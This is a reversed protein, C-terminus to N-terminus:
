EVTIAILFPASDSMASLYDLSRVLEQPRPNEITTLYLRLQYGKEGAVPNSGTWVVRSRSLTPGDPQEPRWWWDRVDPGYLIASEEHGNDYHWVFRAVEAGEKEPGATGHLVHLRRVPAPQEFRIGEVRIPLREWPRSVLGVQDTHRRLQVVGRVDFRVGGFELLGCGLGRLGNDDEEVLGVPYFAAVLLSNYCDTLDLQASTTSVDRQPYLLANEPRSRIPEIAQAEAALRARWYGDAYRRVRSLLGDELPGAYHSERWPFVEWQRVTLDLSSSVVRQSNTAFVLGTLPETHGKLTLIQRGSEFDWVQLSADSFGFTRQRGSAAVFLRKGDGSFAAHTVLGSPWAALVRGTRADCVRIVPEALHILVLREGDPSFLSQFLGPFETAVEFLQHGSEADWVRLGQESATALHRGDPSFAVHYVRNGRHELCRIQRGTDVEWLRATGDHGATAIFKGSPAYAVSIVFRTHGEFSFMLRGNIADWVRSLGDSGETVVRQGDTSFASALVDQVKAEVTVVRRGCDADWITCGREDPAALIRRGDPSVSLGWIWIPGRLVERGSGTSWLKVVGDLDATAVLRSDPSFATSEISAAHGRLQLLESRRELDWVRAVNESGITVLRQGDSSFGARYVRSPIALLEKGNEADWVRATSAEGGSCFRRGDQSFFVRWVESPQAGRIEGLEIRATSNFWLSAMGSLGIAVFRDANPSVFLSGGSIAPLSLPGQDIRGDGDLFRAERETRVLLRSGGSVFAVSTIPDETRQRGVVAGSAVDCVSVETGGRLALRNGDPRYALQEISAKDFRFDWQKQWAATDWVELAGDSFLTALQPFSPNYAVSVASRNTDDLAFVPHGDKTDWVRVAGNQGLSALQSGDHSFIISQVFPLIM